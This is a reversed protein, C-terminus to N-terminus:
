EGQRARAVLEQLGEEVPEQLVPCRSVACLQNSRRRRYGVQDGEVLVRARNRYGYAAPSPTIEIPGPPSLHGIRNLADRLIRGKAEIQVSHDLHQWACGGCIGFAPCRPQSRGPGPQLLQEIEGRAHRKHVESLRVRVRDGPASFPVFLARGDPMRAVGEGGAALSEVRSEVREGPRTGSRVLPRPRQHVNM